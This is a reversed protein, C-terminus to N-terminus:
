CNLQTGRDVKLEDDELRAYLARFRSVDAVTPEDSPDDSEKARVIWAVLHGHHEAADEAKSRAGRRM